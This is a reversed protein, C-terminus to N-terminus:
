RSVQYEEDIGDIKVIDGVTLKHSRRTDIKNNVFVLGSQIVEKAEGGSMVLNAWKLFQDLQIKETNIKIKQM